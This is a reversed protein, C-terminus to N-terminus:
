PTPMTRALLRSPGSGGRAGGSTMSGSLVMIINSGLSRIQDEVRAQAGNGVAIMIIVAAVGIIIGLMTLASRLKNIRLALLAIDPEAAILNIFKRMAEVGDIMGEDLNVDIVQAGNEVQQRAVSVAEDYNGNKILKRFAASGTVNTREGINVFNSGPFIRLPELGSYTPISM